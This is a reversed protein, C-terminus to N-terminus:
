HDRTNGHLNIVMVVFAEPCSDRHAGRDAHRPIAARHVARSCLCASSCIPAIASAFTTSEDEKRSSFDSPQILVAAIVRLGSRIIM